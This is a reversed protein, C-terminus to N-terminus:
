RQSQEHSIVVAMYSHAEGREARAVATEIQKRAHQYTRVACSNEKGGLYRNVNFKGETRICLRESARMVRRNLTRQGSRESLNLDAFSVVEQTEPNAVVSTGLADNESAFAPTTVAVAAALILTKYTM